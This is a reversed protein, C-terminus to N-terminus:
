ISMEPTASSRRRRRRRATSTEEEEEPESTILESETTTTNETAVEEIPEIELAEEPESEEITDRQSSPSNDEVALTEGPKKVYVLVSKADKFKQESHVLPSIGMLAYMEQELDTM